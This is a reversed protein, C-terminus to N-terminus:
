EIVIGLVSYKTMMPRFLKKFRKRLITCIYYVKKPSIQCEHFQLLPFSSTFNKYVSIRQAFQM